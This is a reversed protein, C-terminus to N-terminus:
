GERPQADPPHNHRRTNTTSSVGHRATRRPRRTNDAPDAELAALFALEDPSITTMRAALGTVPAIEHDTFTPM